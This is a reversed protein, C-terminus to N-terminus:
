HGRNLRDSLSKPLELEKMKEQLPSFDYKLHIMSINFPNTNVISYYAGPTGNRPQGVSGPNLFHKNKFKTKVPVHTHGVMLIDTETKEFAESLMAKLQKDSSSDMYDFVKFPSGHVLYITKGNREITRRRPLSTIWKLHEQKINEQTWAIM